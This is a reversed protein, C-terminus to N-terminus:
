RLEQTLKFIAPYRNTLGRQYIAGTSTLLIKMCFWVFVGDRLRNRLHRALFLYFVFSPYAIGQKFLSTTDQIFLDLEKTFKVWYLIIVMHSMFLM